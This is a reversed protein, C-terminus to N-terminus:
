PRRSLELAARLDAIFRAHERDRDADPPLRLLSSPHVTALVQINGFQPASQVRGRMTSVRFATGLLQQAATAGLAVVLRPKVVALEAELWPSCAIVESRNPKAHLRRKGRPAPTWKFHKVANTLYVASRDIGAAVLSQDLLRGAPGVFPHGDTDEKDGPQEGILMLQAPAPGIGFVTQTAQRFLDCGRCARAATQLQVLSVRPSIPPVFAAAGRRDVPEAPNPRTRPM